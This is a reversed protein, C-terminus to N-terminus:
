VPSELVFVPREADGQSVDISKIESIRIQGKVQYRDAGEWFLMKDENVIEFFYERYALKIRLKLMGQVFPEAPALPFQKGEATRGPTPSLQPTDSSSSDLSLPARTSLALPPPSAGPKPPLPPKVREVVDLSPSSRSLTNRLTASRSMERESVVVASRTLAVREEDDGQETGGHLSSGRNPPAPVQDASTDLGKRNNLRSTGLRPQSSTSLDASSVARQRVSLLRSLISCLTLFWSQVYRASGSSDTLGDISAKRPRAGQLESDSSSDEYRSGQSGRQQASLGSRPIERLSDTAAGHFSNSDDIGYNIGFDVSSVRSRPLIEVEDDSSGDGPLPEVPLAKPLSDFLDDLEPDGWSTAPATKNQSNSEPDGWSTAPATKNQSNSPLEGSQVVCM